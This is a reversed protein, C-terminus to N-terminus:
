KKRAELMADATKYYEEAGEAIKPYDGSFTKGQAIHSVAIVASSLADATMAAMAFQDRLTARPERVTSHVPQPLDPRDAPDINSTDYMLRRAIVERYEKGRIERIRKNYEEVRKICEPDACTIKGKFLDNPDLMDSGNEHGGYMKGCMPCPLWFYGGMNAKLREFWEIRM